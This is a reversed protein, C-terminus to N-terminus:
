PAGTKVLFHARRNKTWCTETHDKCLPREKGYTIITMRVTEIGLSVLQDRTAKARIEGLALNYEHTGREDAHGEILGANEIQVSFTSPWLRELGACCAARLPEESARLVGGM